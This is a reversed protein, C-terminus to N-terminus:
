SQADCCQSLSTTDVESVSTLPTAYVAELDTHEKDQM